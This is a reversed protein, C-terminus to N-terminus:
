RSVLYSLYSLATKPMIFDQLKWFLECINLPQLIQLTSIVELNQLFKLPVRKKKDWWSRNDIIVYQTHIFVVKKVM